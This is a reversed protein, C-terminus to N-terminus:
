DKKNRKKAVIKEKEEKDHCAVLKIAVKLGNWTGKYVKGFGGSGILEGLIVNPNEAM